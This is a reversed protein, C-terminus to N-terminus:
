LHGDGGAMALPGADGPPRREGPGLGGHLMREAIAACRLERVVPRKLQIGARRDCGAHWAGDPPFSGRQGGGMAPAHCTARKRLAVRIPPQLSPWQRASRCWACRCSELAPGLRCLACVGAQASPRRITFGAARGDASRQPAALCRAPGPTPNSRWQAEGARRGWALHEPIAGPLRGGRIVTHQCIGHDGTLLADHRIWVVLHQPETGNTPNARGDRLLRSVSLRVCPPPITVYGFRELGGIGHPLGLNM